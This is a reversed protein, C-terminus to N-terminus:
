ATVLSHWQMVDSRFSKIVRAPSGVVISYDPVDRTVVSGAGVISHRGIRVGKLVISREGLWACDGVDVPSALVRRSTVMPVMPNSFDHDHDTIYVGAAIMVGNGIRVRHVAAIHVNPQIVTDSGVNVTATDGPAWTPCMAEIRAYEGIQVRAGIAIQGVGVIRRPYALFSKQGFHLMRQKWWYSELTRWGKRFARFLFAPKEWELTVAVISRREDEVGNSVSSAIELIVEADWSSSLLWDLSCM